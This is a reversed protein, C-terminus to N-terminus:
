ETQLSINDCKDSYPTHSSFTGQNFSTIHSQICVAEFLVGFAL